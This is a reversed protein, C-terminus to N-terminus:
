RWRDRDMWGDMWRDGDIEIWGDMWREIQRDTQRCVIFLSRHAILSGCRILYSRREEPNKRLSYHHNRVSTEPCGTKEM